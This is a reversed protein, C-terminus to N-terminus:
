GGMGLVSQMVSALGLFAFFSTADTLMTLFITSATAPDFGLRHTLLPIGAGVLCGMGLAGTMAVTVVVGLEWPTTILHAASLLAVVVGLMLGAIAGSILGLAVERALLPGIRGKRIEGLVLGRLTVALSQQGANGAQNAIMPMLVALFAIDAVLPEFRSIVIAGLAGTFLNLTLWPLRSRVKQMIPSYVAEGPGAGVQKYADETNEARIIDLVDDVTVIGLLGRDDDVVPLALHDYRDFIRAVDERDQDPRLVVVEREMIDTLPQNSRGLLLSKINVLGVLRGNDDVCYLDLHELEDPNRRVQERADGVTGGARLRVFDTTMIGGASEPDFLTLKGIEAAARRPMARLVEGARAEPLAQVLDAADDPDMLCLLGAAEETSLDHVVISAALPREMEALAEAAREGEMADLIRASDGRDMAELTDAADAAELTDVVSAVQEPSADSEVLAAVKPDTEPPTEAERLIVADSVVVTQASEAKNEDAHEEAM